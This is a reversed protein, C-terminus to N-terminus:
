EDGFKLDLGVHEANVIAKITRIQFRSFPRPTQRKRELLKTLRTRDSLEVHSGQSLRLFQSVALTCSGGPARRSGEDRTGDRKAQRECLNRRGNRRELGIVDTVCVPPKTHPDGIDMRITDMLKFCWAPLAHKPQRTSVRIFHQVHVAVRNCSLILSSPLAVPM